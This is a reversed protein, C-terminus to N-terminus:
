GEVEARVSPCRPPCKRGGAEAAMSSRVKGGREAQRSGSSAGGPSLSREAGRARRAPLGLAAQRVGQAASLSGPLWGTVAPIRKRIREVTESTLTSPRAAICRKKCTSGRCGEALERSGEANGGVSGRGRAWGGEAGPPLESCRESRRRGGQPSRRKPDGPLEAGASCAAASAGPAGEESGPPLLPRACLRVGRKGMSLTALLSGRGEGRRLSPSPRLLSVWRAFLAGGQARGAPYSWRGEGATGAALAPRSGGADSQPASRPEAGGERTRRAPPAPAQARAAM